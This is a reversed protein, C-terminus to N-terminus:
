LFFDPSSIIYNEFRGFPEDSFFLITYPDLEFGRGLLYDVASRNILPLTVGFEEDDRAAAETEGRALVAPFDSADLLAIPGTGKGFFGYGVIHDGRYVLYAQRDAENLLFERDADRAFGLIAQDVARIAAITGPTATVSEFRLDSEITVPEPKRKIQYLPFRPYVGAKLYRAVARIETSGIVARRRAGGAPFSRTLLERGVGKAQDDPLVFYDHVERLGDHLSSRAFGIIQGEHEAVWFQDAERTLHEFLPRRRQWFEEATVPNTWFDANEPNGALREADATTFRFVDYAARCDDLTGPRFTPNM